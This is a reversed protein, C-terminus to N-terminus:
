KTSREYAFGGDKDQSWSTFKISLYINDEILHLVLDRGVVNKPSGVADRFPEFTLTEVDAISGQAWATGAPSSQKNYNSETQINFIQGGNNGRTLWVKDTIRDQNAAADPDAGNAKSFTILAGTWIEASDASSGTGGGMEEEGSNVEPVEPGNLSDETCATFLFATTLFSFLLIRLNM